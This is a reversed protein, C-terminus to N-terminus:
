DGSHTRDGGLAAKIDAHGVDIHFLLVVSLCDLEVLLSQILDGVGVFFHLHLDHLIEAQKKDADALVGFGDDVKLIDHTLTGVCFCAVVEDEAVVGDTIFLPHLLTKLLEDGNRKTKILVLVDWRIHTTRASQKSNM